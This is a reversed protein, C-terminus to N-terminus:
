FWATTTRVYLCIKHRAATTNQIIATGVWFICTTIYLNQRLPGLSHVMEMEQLRYEYILWTAHHQHRGSLWTLKCFDLFACCATIIGFHLKHWCVVAASCTKINWIYETFTVYYMCQLVLQHSSPCMVHSHETATVCLQGFFGHLKSTSIQIWVLLCFM